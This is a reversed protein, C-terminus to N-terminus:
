VVVAELGQLRAWLAISESWDLRNDPSDEALQKRIEKMEGERDMAAPIEVCGGGQYRNILTWVPEETGVGLPMDADEETYHEGRTRHDPNSGDFREVAQLM